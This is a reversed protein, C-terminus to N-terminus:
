GDRRDASAARSGAYFSDPTVNLVGMIWTWGTNSLFSLDPPQSPEAAKVSLPMSKM